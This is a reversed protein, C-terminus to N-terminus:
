QSAFHISKRENESFDHVLQSQSLQRILELDLCGANSGEYFSSLKRWSEVYYMKAIAMSFTLPNLVRAFPWRNETHRGIHMHAAPHSLEKYQHTAYEFRIAPIASTYPMESILQDVQDPDLGGISELIEWEQIVDEAGDVGAIWPNPLYALRWSEESAWSFQLVSYDNLVINYHSRSLATLYIERYSSTKSLAARNFEQDVKLSVFSLLTRAVGVDSELFNWAARIKRGFDAGNM